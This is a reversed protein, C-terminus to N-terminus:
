PSALRQSLPVLLKRKVQIIVRRYLENWEEGVEGQNYYDISFQSGLKLFSNYVNKIRKRALKANHDEDGISDTSGILFLECGRCKKTIRYLSKIRIYYKEEIDTSDFGFFITDQLITDWVETLIEQNLKPVEKIEPNPTDNDDHSRPQDQLNPNYSTPYSKLFKPLLIEDLNALQEELKKNLYSLDKNGNEIKREIDELEEKKSELGRTKITILRKLRSINAKLQAELAVNGSSITKKMEDIKQQYTQKEKKLEAIEFSLNVSEKFLAPITVNELRDVEKKLNALKVIAPHIGERIKGIIGPICDWYKSVFDYEPKDSYRGKKYNERIDEAEKLLNGGRTYNYNSISEYADLLKTTLPWNQQKAKRDGKALIRAKMKEKGGFSFDTALLRCFAEKMPTGHYRNQKKKECACQHTKSFLPQYSCFLLILTLPIYTKM